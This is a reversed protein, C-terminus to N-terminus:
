LAAESAQRAKDRARDIDTAARRPGQVQITTGGVVLQAAEVACLGFQANWYVILSLKARPGFFILLDKWEDETSVSAPILEMTAGVRRLQAVADGLQRADRARAAEDDRKLVDAGKV